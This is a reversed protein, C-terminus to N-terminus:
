QAWDSLQRQAQHRTVDGTLFLSTEFLPQDQVTHQLHQWRMFAIIASITLKQLTKSPTPYRGNFSFGVIM